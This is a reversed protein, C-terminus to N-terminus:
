QLGRRLVMMQEAPALAMAITGEADVGELLTAALAVCCDHAGSLMEGMRMCKSCFVAFSALQSAAAASLASSAITSASSMPSVPMIFSAAASTSATIRASEGEAAAPVMPEAATDASFDSRMEGDMREEGGGEVGAAAAAAAVPDATPDAIAALGLLVIAVFLPPPPPALPLPAKEEDCEKRGECRKELRRVFRRSRIAATAGSNGDSRTAAAGEACPAAADGGARGSRMSRVAECSWAAMSAPRALSRCALSCCGSGSGSGSGSALALRRSVSEGKGAVGARATDAEAGALAAKSM